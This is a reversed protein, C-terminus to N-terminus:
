ETYFSLLLLARKYMCGDPFNLMPEQREGATVEPISMAADNDEVQRVLFREVIHLVLNTLDVLCEACPALHGVLGSFTVM